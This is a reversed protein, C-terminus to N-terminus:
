LEMTTSTRWGVARALWMVGMALLLIFHAEYSSLSICSPVNPLQTFLFGVVSLGVFEFFFMTIKAFM